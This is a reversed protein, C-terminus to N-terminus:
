VTGKRLRYPSCSFSRLPRVLSSHDVKLLLRVASDTYEVQRIEGKLTAQCGDLAELPLAQFVQVAAFMGFAFSCVLLVPCLSRAVKQRRFFFLGIGLGLGILFLVFCGIESLFSAVLLGILYTFGILAAPRKM